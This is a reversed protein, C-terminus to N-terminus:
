IVIVIVSSFAIMQALIGHTVYGSLAGVMWDIDSFTCTANPESLDLRNAISGAPVREEDCGDVHALEDNKYDNYRM